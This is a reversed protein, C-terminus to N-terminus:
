EFDGSAAKTVEYDDSKHSFEHLEHRYCQTGCPWTILDNPSNTEDTLPPLAPLPMWHTVEHEEIQQGDDTPDDWYDFAKYTEEWTPRETRRELVRHEGRYVCLVPTENPPMRETTPTWTNTKM